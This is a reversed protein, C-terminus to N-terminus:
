WGPTHPATALADRPNESWTPPSDTSPPSPAEAPPAPITLPATRTVKQPASATAAVAATPISKPTVTPYLIDHSSSDAKIIREQM